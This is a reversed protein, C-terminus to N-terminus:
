VEEPDQPIKLKDEATPEKNRRLILGIFGGLLLIGGAVMGWTSIPLGVADTM